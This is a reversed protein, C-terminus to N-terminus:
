FLKDLLTEFEDILAKDTKKEEPAPLDEVESNVLTKEAEPEHVTETEAAPLLLGALQSPALGQEAKLMYAKFVRAPLGGGTAKKMPAGSDNGIWVGTVYDATFGVFWADRYDQSTGTKGAVPREGLSAQRGTGETVTGVMMSTMDAEQEPNIVRGLGKGQREYLVKGSATRIRVIVYPIVGTGGSAFAAYGATLEIPTVESTGLALSPVVHLEGAVGLRHAVRAVAEAGVERTLQVSASNSSHALAHALTIEGEYAGEYNEPQWKDITVPGDFVKDGPKHGHELAALYVFPKFASGPQRKAEIARNFTSEDYSRGGVLARLAGDTTMSVLAGQTASFTKGEKALGGELAREAAGQLDLDLTTDVILRENAHGAFAPVLSVAYDVFYGAGPTATRQAIKPRTSVAVKRDQEGIFGQEEMVGLVVSARAMAASPSAEPNYRSPAKVSGALIAAETLSLNKAEKGFFHEAAAEIGYVGGGFYVRNLYLTLIQDKTYRLELYVALVAEDIKRRFTREPKLFLNKALQQTLTSGGQVLGRESIDAVAARTLAWPDIGFHYRFRRDEVAIFANGVYDPLKGLAVVAGQNHGRRAIMRGTTDLLTVDNGPDYVLLNATNPFTNIWHSVVLGGAFLLWALGVLLTYRVMSGKKKPPPADSKMPDPKFYVTTPEFGTRNAGNPREPVTPTNRAM